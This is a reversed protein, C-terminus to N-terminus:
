KRPNEPIRQELKEALLAAVGRVHLTKLRSTAGACLSVASKPIGLWKAFLKLLAKNAAGKEPVARVRAALLAKGDDAHDVGIIEDRSSRPTLRIQVLVGDECARFPLADTEPAQKV